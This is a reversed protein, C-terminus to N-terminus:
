YWMSLSYRETRPMEMEMWSADPMVWGEDAKTINTVRSHGSIGELAPNRPTVQYAGRVNPNQASQDERLERPM